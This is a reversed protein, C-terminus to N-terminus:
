IIYNINCILMKFNSANQSLNEIDVSTFNEIEDKFFRFSKPFIIGMRELKQFLLFFKSCNVPNQADYQQSIGWFKISELLLLYFKKGIEFLNAIPM